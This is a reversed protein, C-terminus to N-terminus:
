KHHEQLYTRVEEYHKIWALEAEGGCRGSFQAGCRCFGVYTNDPQFWPGEPFHHAKPKVALDSPPPNTPTM